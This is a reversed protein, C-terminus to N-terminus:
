TRGVVLVLFNLERVYGHPCQESFLSGFIEKKCSKFVITTFAASVVEDRAIPLASLLLTIKLHLVKHHLLRALLCPFNMHVASTSTTQASKLEEVDVVNHQKFNSASSVICHCWQLNSSILLDDSDFGFKCGGMLGQVGVELKHHALPNTHSLLSNLGSHLLQLSLACM